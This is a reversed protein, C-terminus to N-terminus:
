RIVTQKMSMVAFAACKLFRRPDIMLKRMRDNLTTRAIQLRKAAEGVTGSLRLAESIKETEVSKVVQDLDLQLLNEQSSNTMKAALYSRFGESGIIGDTSTMILNDVFNELERVNGPWSYTELERLLQPHPERNLGHRKSYVKMFYEALPRIDAPRANLTPIKIEMKALRYFLDKKFEELEMMEFIIPQTAAVITVDFSIKPGTPDGLRRFKNEQLARLLKSQAALSLCHLEDLFLVGGNAVEFAGKM